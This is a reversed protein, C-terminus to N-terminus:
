TGSVLNKIQISVSELVYITLAAQYLRPSQIDPIITNSLLNLVHETTAISCANLTYLKMSWETSGRASSITAAMRSWNELVYVAIHRIRLM